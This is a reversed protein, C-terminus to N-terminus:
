EIGRGAGNTPIVSKHIGPRSQTELGPTIAKNSGTQGPIETKKSYKERPTNKNTFYEWLRLVSTVFNKM